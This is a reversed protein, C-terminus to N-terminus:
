EARIHKKLHHASSSRRRAINFDPFRFNSEKQEYDENLDPIIINRRNTQPSTVNTLDISSKNLRFEIGGTASGTPSIISKMQEDNIIIGNSKQTVCPTITTETRITSSPSFYSSPENKILSIDERRFNTLNIPTSFSTNITLPHSTPLPNKIINDISQLCFLTNSNQQVFFKVFRM